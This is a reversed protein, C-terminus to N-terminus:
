ARPASPVPPAQQDSLVLPASLVPQAQRAWPVLRVPLDSRVLQALPVRVEWRGQAELLVLRVQLAQPGRLVLLGAAQAQHSRPM